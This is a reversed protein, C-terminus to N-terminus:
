SRAILEYFSLVTVWETDPDTLDQPPTLENCMLITGVNPIKVNGVGNIADYMASHVTHAQEFRLVDGWVKVAFRPRIVTSVESNSVGGSLDISIAEGETMDIKDPLGYAYISNTTGRQPLLGTVSPLSRLWAVFLNNPDVM